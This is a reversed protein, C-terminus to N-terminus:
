MKGARNVWNKFQLNALENRDAAAFGKILAMQTDPANFERKANEIADLKTELQAKKDADYPAEEALRKIELVMDNIKITQLGPYGIMIIPFGFFFLLGKVAKGKLMQVVMLLVLVLFLVIGMLVMIIEYGYLGDFLAM